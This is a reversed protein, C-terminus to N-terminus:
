AGMEFYGNPALFFGEFIKAGGPEFMLYLTEKKEPMPFNWGGRAYQGLVCKDDSAAIPKGRYLMIRRPATKDGMHLSVGPDFSTKRELPVALITVQGPKLYDALQMRNNGGASVKKWPQDLLPQAPDLMAPLGDAVKQAEALPWSGAVWASKVYHRDRPAWETREIYNEMREKLDALVAAYAPDKAVNNTEQPDKVLDYLELYGDDIYRVLKHTKTRVAVQGPINGDVSEFIFWIDDRWNKVPKGQAEFLPRWSRGEMDGPKAVGCLDLVTASIDISQVMEEPRIGAPVEGPYRVIMPIRMPERYAFHKSTFGHDGLSFGHDSTYIVITDDLMGAEELAKRVIAFHRDLSQAARYHNKIYGDWGGWRAVRAPARRNDVRLRTRAMKPHRGSDQVTEGYTDPKPIDDEAFLNKMDDPYTFPIHPCKFAVQLFLPKDGFPRKKIYDAAQEAVVKDVFGKFKKPEGNVNMEPDEWGGGSVFYDFDKHPSHDGDGIHFKGLYATHYGAKRLYGPYTTQTMEFSVNHMIRPVSAQYPYKGTLFSARSPTCTAATVFANEFLCGERALQDFHPTELFKHGRCSMLDWRHDDAMVVVVNPRKKGNTPALAECGLPVSIAGAACAAAAMNKMFARRNLQKKM